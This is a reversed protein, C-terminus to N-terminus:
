VARLFFDCFGAGAYAKRSELGYYPYYTPSIICENVQFCVLKNCDVAHETDPLALRGDGIDCQICLRVTRETVLGFRVEIFDLLSKREIQGHRVDLGIRFEYLAVASPNRQHDDIATFDDTVRRFLFPHFDRDLGTRAQVHALRRVMARLPLEPPEPLLM